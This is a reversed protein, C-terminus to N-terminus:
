RRERGLVTVDFTDQWVMRQVRGEADFAMPLWTQLDHAKVGDLASNFNEGFYLILPEQQADRQRPFGPTGSSLAVSPLIAVNFQQAPITFNQGGVDDQSCPNIYMDKVSRPPNTGDACPNVENTWNAPPVDSTRWATNEHPISAVAPTQQQPTWPGLATPATFILADGGWQCFCCDFGLMAYFTANRRWMGGGDYWPFDQKEFIVADNGTTKTWTPDLEEVVHRLPSDRTNYRLYAKQGSASNPDTEDVWLAVTDSIVTGPRTAQLPAVNVFPGAPSASTALAVQANRFGYHGSWYVLVWTQTYRNYQVNAEWYSIDHNDSALAPLVNDSLLTWSGNSLDPSAYAAFLNGFYGCEQNCLPANQRCPLYVTGYLYFTGNVEILSGDHANVRRGQTDFLPSV